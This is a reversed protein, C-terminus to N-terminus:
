DMDPKTLSVQDGANLGSLIVVLDENQRGTTIGVKKFRKELYKYCFKTGAEEFVAQVPITLQDNVSDSLISVRATMGPRLREDMNKLAITLEFYKEGRGLRFNESALAGIFAVQGKLVSDPYADVQVECKQDRVLKHLDIERVQTKVIMASIDPLYVLPQSQIVRDGERPKRKSGERYAEYHIAIGSSPARIVTKELANRASVLLRQVTQLKGFVEDYGSKTKAVKFIGGKKLQGLEIETQKVKAEGAKIFSPFVHEKYYSYNNETTECKEKLEVCKERAAIIERPNDFGKQSLEELDSIYALYRKYDKQAKTMESKFGTLKLPGEGQQLRKLDLEAVKMNYQATKIEREVQNKEWELMQKNAAVAAELSQVESELRRVEEEFPAPDLRALIDDKQVQTGDNVLYIIKGRDGRITSSVMHSRAADLVGVTNVTIDFSGSIVTTLRPYRESHNSSVITAVALGILAICVLPILYKKM